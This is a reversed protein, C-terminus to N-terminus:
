QLAAAFREVDSAPMGSKVAADRIQQWTTPDIPVGNATRETRRALEPEGPMQIRETGDALPSAKVWEIFADAEAQAAPADFANPDLIVSTMCNVIARSTELTSEHTTYGGSL